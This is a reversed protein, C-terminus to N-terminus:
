RTLNQMRLLSVSVAFEGYSGNSAGFKLSGKDFKKIMDKLVTNFVKEDTTLVAAAESLIPEPVHLSLIQDREPSIVILMAMHSAILGEKKALDLPHVTFRVCSLALLEIDGIEAKVMPHVLLM